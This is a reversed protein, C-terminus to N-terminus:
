SNAVLASSTRLLMHFVTLGFDHSPDPDPVGWKAFTGYTRYACASPSCGVSRSCLPIRTCSM